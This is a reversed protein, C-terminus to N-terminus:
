AYGQDFYKLVRNFNAAQGPEQYCVAMLGAADACHSSWDHEPGLGIDRNDDRKEHYYGLARRGGETKTEHFWLKPGLRRLAEIRMSAAGPGQNKVPPEVKLGAERLHDEYKKGTINNTTAGDHPLYFIVDQYKNQRIWNIHHGLVQGRQEYYDLMRIEQGVWQVIWMAFADAKAGAGGIDIFARLPLLPDAAVEGIRGKVRADNLISAFYAGEFATAFQGEYTHPYREPYHTLELQREAELENTWWPNDRWNATVILTDPPLGNKSCFFKEVADNPKTPNWSFWIESAEARMTPRLLSLSRESLVQAEDIWAVRFDELSKISEANHSQMGQFIIVGGGPTKIRDHLVEFLHGVGMHIIANEVIKKSSQTLTRQVERICVINTGPYLLCYEVALQGFFRSKGSGRGGKAAKYRSPALLPGFVEATLIDLSREKLAAVTM